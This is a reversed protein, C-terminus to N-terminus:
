AGAGFGPRGAAWQPQLLVSTRPWGRQEVLHRQLLRCTDSEGAVYATGPRAPLDLEQVARLLVRSAVGSATGRHVWPLPTRAGFDPVENGPTSTEFVGYTEADRGLAARMALLPVAGTEDGLFLHHRAAEDLTIKSRPPEVVVRDGVAVGRAWACGPGGADHLAIRLTVSAAGPDHRWLSYVRREPTHVVLHAGPRSRLRRLEPGVLEVQRIHTAVDCVARVETMLPARRTFTM